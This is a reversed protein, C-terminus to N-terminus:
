RLTHGAVFVLCWRGAVFTINALIWALAPKMPSMCAQSFSPCWSSPPCEFILAMKLCRHSALSSNDLKSHHCPIQQALQASFNQLRSERAQAVCSIARSQCRCRKCCNYLLKQCRSIFKNVDAPMKSRPAM